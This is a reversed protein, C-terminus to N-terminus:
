LKPGKPYAAGRAQPKMGHGQYKQILGAIDKQANGASQRGTYGGANLARGEANMNGPMAIGPAKKAFFNTGV